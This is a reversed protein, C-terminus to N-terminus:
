VAPPPRLRRMHFTPSTMGKAPAQNGTTKNIRIHREFTSRSIAIKPYSGSVLDAYHTNSLRAPIKKTAKM